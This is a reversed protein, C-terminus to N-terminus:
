HSYDQVAWWHPDVQEPWGDIGFAGKLDWPDPPDSSYVLGYLDAHGLSRVVIRVVLRGDPSREAEVVRGARYMEGADWSRLSVPELQALSEPDKDASLIFDATSGRAIGVAEIRRIIAEYRKRNRGLESKTETWARWQMCPIEFSLIPIPIRCSLALAILGAVALLFVAAAIWWRAYGGM